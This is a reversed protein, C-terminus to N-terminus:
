ETANNTVSIDCTKEVYQQINTASKIIENLSEDSLSGTAIGEALRGGIAIIDNKIEEPAGPPLDSVFDLLVPAAEKATAILQKPDGSDKAALLEQGFDSGLLKGIEACTEAQGPALSKASASPTQPAASSSEPQTSASSTSAAPSSGSSCGAILATAALLSGTVLVVSKRMKVGSDLYGSLIDNNPKVVTLRKPELRALIRKEHETILDASADTWM